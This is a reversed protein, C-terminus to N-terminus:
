NILFYRTVRFNRRKNINITISVCYTEPHPKAEYVIETNGRCAPDM